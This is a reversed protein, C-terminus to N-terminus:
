TEPGVNRLPLPLCYKEIRKKYPAQPVSAEYRSPDIQRNNKPRQILHPGRHQM